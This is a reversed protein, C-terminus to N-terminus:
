NLSPDDIVKLIEIMKMLYDGTTGQKLAKIVADRVLKIQEDTFPYCTKM